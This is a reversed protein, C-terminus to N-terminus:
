GIRDPMGAGAEILPLYWSEYAYPKEDESGPWLSGWPRLFIEYRFGGNGVAEYNGEIHLLVGGEDETRTILWDDPKLERDLFSGAVCRLTGNQPELQAVALFTDKSLDEDWILLRMAGGEDTIQACCDWYYGYMHEWDGSCHDMRWWGYWDSADPVVTPASSEPPATPVPTSVAEPTATERLVVVTKDAPDARGCACLSMALILYILIRGHASM